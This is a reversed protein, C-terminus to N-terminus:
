GMTNRPVRMWRVGEIPGRAYTLGGHLAPKAHSAAAHFAVAHAPRAAPAAVGAAARSEFPGPASFLTFASRQHTTAGAALAAEAMAAVDAVPPPTARSGPSVCCSAQSSSGGFSVVSAPSLSSTYAPSAPSTDGLSDRSWCPAVVYGSDARSRGYQSDLPPPRPASAPTASPQLAAQRRAKELAWAVSSSIRHGAALDLGADVASLKDWAYMVRVNFMGPQMERGHLARICTAADDESHFAIYADWFRACGRRKAINVGSAALGLDALAAEVIKCAEAMNIAVVTDVRVKRFTLVRKGGEKDVPTYSESM